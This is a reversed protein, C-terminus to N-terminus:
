VNSFQAIVERRSQRLAGAERGPVEATEQIVFAMFLQSADPHSQNPHTICPGKDHTSIWFHIRDIAIIGHKSSVHVAREEKKKHQDLFTKDTATIDNVHLKYPM